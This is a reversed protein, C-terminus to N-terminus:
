TGSGNRPRSLTDDDIKMANKLRRASGAPKNRRWGQSIPGSVEPPERRIDQQPRSSAAVYSPREILKDAARACIRSPAMLEKGEPMAKVSAIMPTLLIDALTLGVGVLNDRSDVAHDLAGMVKRIEPLAADITARDPKGDPGRPFAYQLVYNRVMAPYGYCNLVSIWQETKAREIPDAPM